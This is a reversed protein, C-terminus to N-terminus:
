VAEIWSTTRASREIADILELTAGGEALSCLLDADHGQLMAIHQRRYTDNREVVITDTRDNVRVRNAVLDAHITTKPTIITITRQGIRDLYNVQLGITPCATSCLLVSWHDDSRVDIAGSRGGIGCVSRWPGFLWQLYDLEHSLDRLVGGGRGPDASYGSQYETGPRWSSLHQGAYVMVTVAPGTNALEERIAALVPHFRLNYGVAIREFDADPVSVPHDALPKEVLVKGRFGSSRLVELDPLHASTERALVVYGPDFREIATTINSFSTFAHDVDRRSVVAVECGLEALIEGHRRGISGTGVILTRSM